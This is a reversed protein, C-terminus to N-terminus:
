EFIVKPPIYRIHIPMYQFKSIPNNLYYNIIYATMYRPGKRADSIVSNLYIKLDLLSITQSSPDGDYIIQDGGVTLRVCHTETKSLKIDCIFNAYTIKKVRPSPKDSSLFYQTPAKLENPPSVPNVEARHWASFNMLSPSKGLRKRPAPLSLKSLPIPM